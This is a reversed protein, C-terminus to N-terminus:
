HRYLRLIVLIPKCHLLCSIRAIRKQMQISAVMSVISKPYRHFLDNVYWLDYSPDMWIEVQSVLARVINSKIETEDNKSNEDIARDKGKLRGLLINVAAQYHQLSLKPNNEALQALYLHASPPTVAPADPHPPILSEFAQLLCENFKERHSGFMRM